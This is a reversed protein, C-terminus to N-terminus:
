DSFLDVCSRVLCKQCFLSLSSTLSGCGDGSGLAVVVLCVLGHEGFVKSLFLSLSSTLSGCGDGGSKVVLCVVGHEGFVKSESCFHSLGVTLYIGGAVLEAVVIKDGTM